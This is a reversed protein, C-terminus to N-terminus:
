DATFKLVVLIVLMSVVVAASGIAFDHDIGLLRLLSRVPQRQDLSYSM